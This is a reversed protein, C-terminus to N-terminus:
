IGERCDKVIKMINDLLKKNRLSLVSKNIASERGINEPTLVQAAVFMKILKHIDAQSIHEKNSILSNAVYIVSDGTVREYRNIIASRNVLQRLLRVPTKGTLQSMKKLINIYLNQFERIKRKRSDTLQIDGRAAYNSKMIDIFREASMHEFAGAAHNDQYYVPLERLIDRLSFIADWTIGDQVKYPGKVSKANEFYFCAKRFSEVLEPGRNNNMLSFIQSNEFGTKRLLCEHRTRAFVENFICIAKHDSFENVPRKKGNVLCDTIQAFTQVIYRAKCKQERISTSYRDVDDYRYENHYLGFQRVSGFDILGGDVLINDGDWDMWCFIYESEFKAAARGFYTAVRQLFYNYKDCKKVDPWDGNNVQRDIYYDVAGKLGSFDNQKIHYFFHAPRLLNKSARVNISTGDEFDIICLTRETLIDNNHFIESMVVASLGDLFDCRGGGYSVNEDGTKFFTKEIATAPSLCTAGTGCSSIDWVTKKNGHKKEFVGNWVSRGDGSGLGKRDPHQAQLYRTAMYKNQRIDKEPTKVGHILDYENIIEISFTDLITKCLDKNLSDPHGKELLGMERALGFNFYFVRGGHRTRVAYDVYGHPVAERLPHRGDIRSFAAYANCGTKHASRSQRRTNAM